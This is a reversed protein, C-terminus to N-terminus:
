EPTYFFKYASLQALGQAFAIKPQSDAPFEVREQDSGPELAAFDVLEFWVHPHVLVTVLGNTEIDLESFECGEVRGLSASRQIDLLDAVARFVRPAEGSKEARGEVIAAHGELASALPGEPPAMFSFRASRYVGSVGEGAPLDTPGALLDVSWSELMQGLAKGAQYHGPHAHATGVFFSVLAFQWSRQRELQVLPPAGDFYYFPGTAVLAKSLTVNWGAATAFGSSSGPDLAVRTGLEVRQGGTDSGCAQLSAASAVTGLGLALGLTSVYPRRRRRRPFPNDPQQARHM